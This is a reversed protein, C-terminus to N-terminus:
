QFSARERQVSAAGGPGARDHGDRRTEYGLWSMEIKPKGFLGDGGSEHMHVRHSTMVRTEGGTVSEPALIAITCQAMIPSKSCNPGSAGRCRAHYICPGIPFDIYKSYCCERDNNYQHALMAGRYYTIYGSTAGYRMTLILGLDGEVNIKYLTEKMLM